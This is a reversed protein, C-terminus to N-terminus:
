VAHRLDIRTDCLRLYCMYIRLYGYALQFKVNEIGHSDCLIREYASHLIYRSHYLHTEAWTRVFVITYLNSLRVNSVLENICEFVTKWRFNM